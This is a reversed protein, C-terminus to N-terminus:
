SVRTLTLPIPKDEHGAFVASGTLTKGSSDIKLTFISSPQTNFDFRVIGREFSVDRLDQWKPGRDSHSRGSWNNGTQTFEFTFVAGTFNGSWVGAISPASAALVISSTSYIATAATFVVIARSALMLRFM